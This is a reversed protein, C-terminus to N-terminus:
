AQQAKKEKRYREMARCEHEKYMDLRLMMEKWEVQHADFEPGDVCVFKIEDGVTVRCGGCMGTGDVMITNLSALTSIHYPRTVEAVNKMMIAPGIAIVLDMKRKQDILEQLATTVFGKRGYSGDDTTVIIEDSVKTMEKELIVLDKNRAGLIAIIHNGAKKMAQTIPYLPAIGIGGGIAVVMGYKEIHTPSGLPGAIDQLHDGVELDALEYTTKGVSQSILTITGKEADADAITLPIREGEENVRIIVFQGAKRKRAIDPATVVFRTVLPAIKEKSLIQNQTM